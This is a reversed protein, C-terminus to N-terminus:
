NSLECRFSVAHVTVPNERKLFCRVIQAELSVCQAFAELSVVSWLKLFDPDRGMPNKPNLIQVIVGSGLADDDLGFRERFSGCGRFSFLMASIM